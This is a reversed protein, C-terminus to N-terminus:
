AVGARRRAEDFAQQIAADLQESLERVVRRPVRRGEAPAPPVIPDAVVLVIKRPAIFKAGRPMAEESGGIGVPVLPVGTRSAVYAPGDFTPALRPGTQRTGEPFMVLPEGNGIVELCTRLSERDATGRHVPFGGLLSVFAGGPRWKWISAKGMYRMRTRTLPAVLLFDINSRHVPALVFPGDTPVKDRGVIELRFWIKTLAVVLARVVGYAVRELRTPPHVDVPAARVTDAPRRAEPSAPEASDAM